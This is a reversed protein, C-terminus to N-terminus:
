VRSPRNDAGWAFALLLAVVVHLAVAPWLLVGAAHRFAGLHALYLAVLGNYILLARLAAPSPEAPKRGPWSAFVLALLVIGAVRGVGVAEGTPTGGLLLSIVLQPVVMLALGTAGEVLADLVVLRRGTM